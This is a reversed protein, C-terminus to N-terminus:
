VVVNPISYSGKLWFLSVMHQSAAIIAKGDHTRVLVEFIHV